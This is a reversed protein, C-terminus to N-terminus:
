TAWAAVPRLGPIRGGSEAQARVALHRWILQASTEAGSLNLSVSSPEHLLADKIRSALCEPALHDEELVGLVGSRALKEARVAQERDGNATVPYVLARVRASVIDMVTNYGAMSVSLAARKLCCSLNPTFRLLKVNPANQALRELRGYVEAPMLPGAFVQFRHPICDSLLPAARLVSELLRHGSLCKGGGNSVIISPRGTERTRVSCERPSDADSVDARTVYGTYYVPCVLDSARAFSEELRQFKEDGHVLVLDYYRNIQDTVWQEHAIPNKKTALIDRVSSVIMPPEDSDAARQLLPLLEFSFQKRGFPFLETVVAHPQFEEFARLLQAKRLERVEDLKQQPNCPRLEGSDSDMEVPPLQLSNVRRSFDVGNVAEGGTVFLVSSEGSMARVVEASRFLHGM